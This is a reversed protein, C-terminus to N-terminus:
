SGRASTTATPASTRLRAGSRTPPAIAATAESSMIPHGACTTPPTTRGWTYEMLGNNLFVEQGREVDRETYVVRGAPDVVREPIPPKAQYTRYALLGLVFFGFLVVLVVAQVWGRSVLLARRDGAVGGETTPVGFRPWYLDPAPRCRACAHRNRLEGCGFQRTGRIGEGWRARLRAVHPRSHEYRAAVGRDRLQTSRAVLDLQDPVGARDALGFLRKAAKSRAHEYEVRIEAM